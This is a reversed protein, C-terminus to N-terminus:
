RRSRRRTPSRTGSRAGAARADLAVVVAALPLLVILSLYGTAIGSPSAAAEGRVARRRRPASVAAASVRRPAGVERQIDAVIGDERDFLEKM